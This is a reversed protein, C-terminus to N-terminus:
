LLLTSGKSSYISSGAPHMAISPLVKIKNVSFMLTEERSLLWEKKTRTHGANITNIESNFRGKDKKNSENEM